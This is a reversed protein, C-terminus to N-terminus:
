NLLQKKQYFSNKQIKILLEYIIILSIFKNNIVQKLIVTMYM